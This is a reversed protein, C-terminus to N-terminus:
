AQVGSLLQSGDAAAILGPVDLIDTVRKQIVASGMVGKRGSQRQMVFSEEVIDLIRDVVLGVSRGQDAYVVVHLSEQVKESVKRRKSELVESVRVLPMIKGRYQVVEQDAAVEVTDCPFEELRAVLGLDIAMRGNEGYQFLLVASRQNNDAAALSQKEEKDTVARDRVESVVNARQALGLVDLILAVKGDGMITAGAYTNISKLQKSLPKVVIEETDNIEDVVLGFQRDDARLVVINANQSEHVKKEAVSLLEIIQKSLPKVKSFECEAQSQNGQAALAVVERILEHFHKHTAELAQMEAISGYNKLAASYLWKGLACETPSGAQEVTMTIKFDLVQTLRDIWQEHKNRAQAFDLADGSSFSATKPERDQGQADVKLERNLYVLPLLRGRLRHVPAGNVLEIGKRAQEGELRVLELLSVQPIAYRDGGTSVILAPIIALTLPIKMRVTSGQRPKSQVDVTGGIKEINTKVVDMGVGRGSVNTVKEATSFGPLFILNTVERETMRAAQDATILAKQVAKNRIKEYDLGAGDDTIEINVQGGEHFARLFLRGEPDKGAARRVEPTEIGHDVANRVLHTLPDKIAEIITKDLETDKGEMEIHVQKGCGVAVDRVTRPFKSWINDIPQMRTKMVGEQLETTLLNLRQSTKILDTDESSNTFQVIQNRLLVLEGMRNMLRDLQSVDVRITSDSASGRAQQQANLADVVDQPKVAGKEVLIEGVHRPDGAQQQEVADCVESIKATGRSILINGLNPVPQPSDNTPIESKSPAAQSAAKPKEDSQLLRTLSAILEQDNREGEKGGAEISALMQRVADVMALLATTIEPSMSLLGDRLRALLSEGVHTVAELQNFALFGSTGKITHITRFVSALTERNGPDKELAILDRDLRDLNEYSEVLFERIIETDSM